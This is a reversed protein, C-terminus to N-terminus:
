DENMEAIAKIQSRDLAPYAQGTDIDKRVQDAHWEDVSDWKNQSANNIAGMIDAQLKYAAAVVFATAVIVALLWRLNTKFEVKEPNSLNLVQKDGGNGVSSARVINVRQRTDLDVWDSEGVEIEHPDGEGPKPKSM